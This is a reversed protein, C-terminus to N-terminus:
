RPGMAAGLDSAAFGAPATGEKAYLYLAAQFIGQLTAQILGVLIMYAVGVAILVVALAASKAITFFGFIIAAIGPISLLFFILGFAFGGILQEGWTHKLLRVSEKLSAFPGKREVVMVPVVLFTMVTWAMGLLGIIFRGVGRRNNELARLIMGVTAAVLAWGFIQPLRAFAAQFGTSLTPDGGKMRYVACAVVASNFFIIVFYNCFYFAFGLVYHTIQKATVKGEAAHASATAEVETGTDGDATAMMPLAFSALVLLCCIASLLPFVLLEKDQKLVEWSSRMMSLTYGIKGM